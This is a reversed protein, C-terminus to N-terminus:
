VLKLSETKLAYLVDNVATAVLSPLVDNLATEIDAAVHAETRAIGVGEALIAAKLAPITAMLAVVIDAVMDREFQGGAAFTVAKGDPTVLQLKFAPITM